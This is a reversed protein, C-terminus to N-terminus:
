GTRKCAGGTQIRGKWQYVDFPLRQRPYAGVLHGGGPEAMFMRRHSFGTRETQGGDLQHIIGALRRQRRYLSETQM